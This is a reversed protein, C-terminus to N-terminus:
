LIKVEPELRVGYKEFVIDQVKRILELVDGSTANGTNIIFGAHKESVRAGGVSMGKLGANEILAGAFHGEPRKFTSGASPYNVPQKERRRASYDDMRAKAGGDDPSLEFVASLVICEPYAYPSLRYGMLSIDADTTKLEGNEIVTLRRLAQKIEGGYAGANMAVAGGVTGPIGAAWELGMFGCAVSFKSAAALSAGGGCVLTNGCLKYSCLEGCLKIVLMDLGEDGILLNSGNGILFYPVGKNQAFHILGVAESETKPEAFLAIKGGTKFTTCYKGETDERFSIGNENLYEITSTFDVM